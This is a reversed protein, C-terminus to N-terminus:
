LICFYQRYVDKKAYRPTISLNILTEKVNTNM